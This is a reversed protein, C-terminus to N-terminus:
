LDGMELFSYHGSQTFIIHDLLQIGLLGGAEKLRLTVDRDAQSPKLCGSPHNHAVVIGSARDTIADAFVERPHVQSRNVLGVTIVRNSIVENAGNVTIALFHEQKKEAFHRVLGLVDGAKKLIYGQPRVRRRALEIAAAFTAVRAPGLGPVKMLHEINLSLEPDQFQELVRHALKLVSHGRSGRGLIVATLELDSLAEPGKSLLKERPRDFVPLELIKASKQIM